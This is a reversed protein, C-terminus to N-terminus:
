EESTYDVKKSNLKIWRVNTVNCKDTIRKVFQQALRSNKTKKFITKTYNIEIMILYESMRKVREKRGREKKITDHRQLMTLLLNCLSKIVKKYM